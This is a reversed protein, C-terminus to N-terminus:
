ITGASGFRQLFTWPCFDYTQKSLCRSLHSSTFRSSWFLVTGELFKNQELFFHCAQWLGEALSSCQRKRLFDLDVEIELSPRRCSSRERRIRGVLPCLYGACFIVIMSRALKLLTQLFTHIGIPYCRHLAWTQFNHLFYAFIISTPM